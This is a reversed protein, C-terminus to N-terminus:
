PAPLLVDDRRENRVSVPSCRLCGNRSKYFELRVSFQAFTIWCAELLFPERALPLVIHLENQAASAETQRSIFDRSRLNITGARCQRWLFAGPRHM